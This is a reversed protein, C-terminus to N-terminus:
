HRVADDLIRRMPMKMGKNRQIALMKGQCQRPAPCRRATPLPTIQIIAFPRNNREPAPAGRTGSVPLMFLRRRHFILSWCAVFIVFSDPEDM